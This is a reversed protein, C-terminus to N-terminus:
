WKGREQSSPPIRGHPRIADIRDDVTQQIFPRLAEVAKSTFAKGILSRSRTHIPGDRFVLMDSLFRNVFKWKAEM